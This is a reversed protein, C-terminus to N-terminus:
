PEGWCVLISSNIPGQIDDIQWLFPVLIATWITAHGLKAELPDSLPFASINNLVWSLDSGQKGEKM